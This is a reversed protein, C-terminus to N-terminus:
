WAVDPLGFDRWGGNVSGIGSFGSANTLVGDAHVVQFTGQLKDIAADVIVAGYITAGGTTELAANIDEGDFVYLVGYIDAGGNIKTRTAASILIVPNGPSGVSIGGSITCTSGSIWILGSSHPGLGTCDYFIEASNKVM